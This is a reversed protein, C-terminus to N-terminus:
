ANAAVAPRSSGGIHSHSDVIGPIIVKGRAEIVHATKPVSLASEPGVAEIKGGRVILVGHEIPGGSVPYIKAGRIYLAEPKSLTTQTQASTFQLTTLVALVCAYRWLKVVGGSLLVETSTPRASHAQLPSAAFRLHRIQPCDVQGLRNLQRM